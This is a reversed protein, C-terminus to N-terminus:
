YQFAWPISGPSPATVWLWRPAAEEVTLFCLSTATPLRQINEYVKHSSLPTETRSSFTYADTQHILVSNFRISWLYQILYTSDQWTLNKKRKKFITEPNLLVCVLLSIKFMGKAAVERCARFILPPEKEEVSEITWCKREKWVSSHQWLCRSNM